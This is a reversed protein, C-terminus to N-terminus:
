LQEMVHLCKARGDVDDFFFGVNTLYQFIDEVTKFKGNQDLVKVKNMFMMRIYAKVQEYPIGLCNVEFEMFANTADKSTFYDLSDLFRFVDHPTKLEKSKIKQEALALFDMM